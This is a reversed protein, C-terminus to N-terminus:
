QDLNISGPERLLDRLHMLFEDKLPFEFFFGQDFRIRLRFGRADNPRHVVVTHENGFRQIITTGERAIDFSTPTEAPPIVEQDPVADEDAM